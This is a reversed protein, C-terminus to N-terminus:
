KSLKIIMYSPTEIFANYRIYCSQKWSEPPSPEEVKEIRFGANIIANFYDGVTHHYSMSLYNEINDNYEIWPQVYARKSKDLYRVVWEDDSPFEGNKDVPYQATYIPHMLSVICVGKDELASYMNCFLDKIDKIYHFTTSSFIFDFKGDIYTHWNSIDGQIFEVKSGRSKAKEKAISLMHESIDVGLVSLPNEKEFLFSFRGTGCGLDLIRKDNLKPLIKQICPWEIAYSYSDEKETFDEYAKAMDDWNKEIENKM